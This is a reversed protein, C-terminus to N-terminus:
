VDSRARRNQIRRSGMIRRTREKTKPIVHQLRRTPAPTSILLLASTTARSPTSSLRTLKLSPHLFCLVCRVRRIHPIRYPPPMSRPVCRKLTGCLFGPPRAGRLLNRSGASNGTIAAVIPFQEIGSERMPGASDTLFRPSNDHKKKIIFAPM